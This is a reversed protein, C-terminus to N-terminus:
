EDATGPFLPSDDRVTDLIDERQGRANSIHEHTDYLLLMAEAYSDAYVTETCQHRVGIAGLKRGSFRFTYRKM